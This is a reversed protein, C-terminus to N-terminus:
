DSKLYQECQDLYGANGVTQLPMDETAPLYRQAFTHGFPQGREGAEVIIADMKEDGVSVFGDFALAYQDADEGLDYIMAKAQKLVAGMDEAVFRLLKRQDEHIVMVFPTLVGDVSLSDIGYDLAMFVLQLLEDSIEPLKGM